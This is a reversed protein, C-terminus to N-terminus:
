NSIISKLEFLSTIIKCDNFKTPKVKFLIPTCYAKKACEADHIRDGIMVIQNPELRNHQITKQIQELRDISEDRTIISEFISPALKQLIKETIQRGQMTVLGLIFKQTKFHMLIEQAGEIIEFNNIALSEEESMIEFAKKQLLDNTGAFRTISPMLPKLEEKTGFLDQLRQLLRPYNIPLRILTGDLDFIIAKLTNTGQIWRRELAL